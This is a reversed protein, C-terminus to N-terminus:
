ASCAGDDYVVCSYDGSAPICCTSMVTCLETRNPPEGGDTCNFNSPEACIETDECLRGASYALVTGRANASVPITDFSDVRLDDLALALKKM